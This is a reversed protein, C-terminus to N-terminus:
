EGKELGFLSKFKEARIEAEKLDDSTWVPLRRFRIISARKRQGSPNVHYGISWYFVSGVDILPFDEDSIEALLIEAIEDQAEENYDELKAMFSDKLLELVVGRWKQLCKFQSRRKDKTPLWVVPKERNYVEDYNIRPNESINNRVLVDTTLCSSSNKLNENRNSLENNKASIWPMSGLLLPWCRGKFLDSHVDDIESDLDHVAENSTLPIFNDHLGCAPIM